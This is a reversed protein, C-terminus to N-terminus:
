ITKAFRDRAQPMDFYQPNNIAIMPVDDRLLVQFGNMKIDSLIWVGVERILPKDKEALFDILRRDRFVFRADKRHADPQEFCAPRMSWEYDYAYRSTAVFQAT